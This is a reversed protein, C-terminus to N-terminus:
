HQNAYILTGRRKKTKKGEGRATDPADRHRMGGSSKGSELGPKKDLRRNAKHCPAILAGPEVRM